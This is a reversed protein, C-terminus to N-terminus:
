TLRGKQAQQLREQLKEVQKELDFIKNQQLLMKIYFVNMRSFLYSTLASLDKTKEFEAHIFPNLKYDPIQLYFNIFYNTFEKIVVDLAQYKLEPNQQFSEQRSLFKEFYNFGLRLATLWKEAVKSFIKQNSQTVSEGHIRYIYTVNPIKVYKEVVCVLCCTFIFDEGPANIMELGNEFVVSRRILKVWASWVFQPNKLAAIRAIMDVSISTPKSVFKITPPSTIKLLNKNFIGGNAPSQFWKECEVVDADFEKAVTYFEEIATKTIADDSDVFALYEGRSISMGINRPIGGYGSNKKSKILRLRDNFKPIYSEVIAASNDTSCDDVVIVEFDTFTQALISDLCEGIYKETNYMPIIISVAPIMRNM